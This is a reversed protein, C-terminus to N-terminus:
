ELSSNDNDDDETGRQKWRPPSSCRPNIMVAITSMAQMFFERAEKRDENREECAARKGEEREERVAKREERAELLSAQYTELFDTYLSFTSEM